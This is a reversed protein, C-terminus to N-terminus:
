VSKGSLNRDGLFPISPLPIIVAFYLNRKRKQTGKRNIHFSKLAARSPVPLSNTAEIKGALLQWPAKKFPLFSCKNCIKVHTSACLLLKM